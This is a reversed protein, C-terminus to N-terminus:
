IDTFWVCVLGDSDVTDAAVSSRWMLYIGNREIDTAATGNYSCVINCKLDFEWVSSQTPSTFYTIAAPTGEAVLRAGIFLPSAALVRFRNHNFSENTLQTAPGVSAFVSIPGPITDSVQQTDQVVNMRIMEEASPLSGLSGSATSIRVHGQIRTIRISDGIRGLDDTGNGIAVLNQSAGATDSINIASLSTDFHKLEPKRLAVLKSLRMVRKALNAEAQRSSVPVVSKTSSSYRSVGRAFSRRGRTGAYSTYAM